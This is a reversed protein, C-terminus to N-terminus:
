SPPNMSLYLRNLHLDPNWWYHQDMMRELLLPAPFLLQALLGFFSWFDFFLNAM